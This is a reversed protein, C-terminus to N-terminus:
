VCLTNYADRYEEESLYCGLRQPQFTWNLNIARATTITNMVEFNDILANLAIHDPWETIDINPNVYKKLLMKFWLNETCISGSNRLEHIRNIDLHKIDEFVSAWKLIDERIGVQFWDNARYTSIDIESGPKITMMNGILLKETFASINANTKRPYTNRLEFLDRFHMIDTRTVLIESGACHMVGYYYSQAQRLFQQIPGEGPDDSCVVKDIGYLGQIAHQQNSWTSLVLEGTHWSRISDVVQQIYVDPRKDFAISGRIVVSRM